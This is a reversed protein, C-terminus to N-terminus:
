SYSHLLVPPMQMTEHGTEPAPFGKRTKNLATSEVWGVNRNQVCIRGRLGRLVYVLCVCHEILDVEQGALVWEITSDCELITTVTTGGVAKM